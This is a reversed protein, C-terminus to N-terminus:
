RAALNHEFWSTDSGGDPAPESASEWPAVPGGTWKFVDFGRLEDGVYIYPGKYFNATWVNAGAMVAHGVETPLSPNSFDIVRAGGSYWGTVMVRGTPGGIEGVHGTCAAGSSANTGIVPAEFEGVPVPASENSTDFITIGEGPCVETGSTFFGGLALSENTGLAYKRDPTPDFGHAYTGANPLRSLMTPAAPNSSDWISWNNESAVYARDGDRSFAIDHPGGLVGTVDAALKPNDPDTFDIIPIHNLAGPLDGTSVWGFPKTPHFTFNHAGGVTRVSYLKVFDYPDTVDFVAIGGNTSGIYKTNVCPNSGGDRALALLWRDGFKKLQVDNQTQNCPINRALQPAMPDTIDFVYAGGGYSGMVAFDKVVPIPNGEEDLILEGTTYDRQPVTSTFFELDTGTYPIDYNWVHALNLMHPTGALQPPEQAVALPLNAVLMLLAGLAVGSVIKRTM